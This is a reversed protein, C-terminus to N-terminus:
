QGAECIATVPDLDAQKRYLTHFLLAVVLSIGACLYFAAVYGYLRIVFGMLASSLMMGLYLCSNYLGLALGRQERPAAEATLAVLATFAIGLTVGFVVAGALLPGLSGASGLIVL